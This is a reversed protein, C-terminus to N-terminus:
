PIGPDALFVSELIHIIVEAQFEVQMETSKLSGRSRCIATQPCIGDMLWTMCTCKPKIFIPTTSCNVTTIILQVMNYLLSTTITTMITWFPKQLISPPSATKMELLAATLLNKPQTPISLSFHHTGMILLHKIAVGSPTFSTYINLVITVGNPYM